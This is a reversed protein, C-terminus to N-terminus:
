NHIIDSIIPTQDVVVSITTVFQCGGASIIYNVPHTGPGSISSCFQDNSVGVGSFTGNPLDAILNVCPDGPCFPGIPTITPNQDFIFVDLNTTPSTCGNASTAFVSIANPILGPATLSWDVIISNTGQGSVLAGLPNVTWTYTYGPTNPIQYTSGPSQFCVTDPNTISPQAFMLNPITILLTLITKKM